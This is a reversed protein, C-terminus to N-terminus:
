IRKEELNHKVINSGQTSGHVGICAFGEHVHSRIRDIAQTATPGFGMAAMWEYSMIESCSQAMCKQSHSFRRTACLMHYTHLCPTIVVDLAQLGFGLGCFVCWEIRVFLSAPCVPHEVPAPHVARLGEAYLSDVLCNTNLMFENSGRMKEAIREHDCKASQLENTAAIIDQQMKNIEKRLETKFMKSQSNQITSLIWDHTGTITSCKKEAEM